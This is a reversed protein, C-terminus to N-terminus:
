PGWKCNLKDIRNLTDGTSTLKCLREMACFQELFVGVPAGFLITRMKLLNTTVYFLKVRLLLLALGPLKM